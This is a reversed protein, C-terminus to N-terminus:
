KKEEEALLASTIGIKKLEEVASFLNDIGFSRSKLSKLDSSVM